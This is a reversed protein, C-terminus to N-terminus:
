QIKAYLTEYDLIVNSKQKKSDFFDMVNELVETDDQGNHFNDLKRTEGLTQWLKNLEKQTGIWCIPINYIQNGYDSTWKKTYGRQLMFINRLLVNIIIPEKFRKSYIVIYPHNLHDQGVSRQANIVQIYKPDYEQKVIDYASRLMSWYWMSGDYTLNNKLGDFKDVRARSHCDIYKPNSIIAAEIKSALITAYPMIKPTKPFFNFHSFM